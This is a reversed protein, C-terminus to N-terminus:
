GNKRKLTIVVDATIPQWIETRGAPWQRRTPDVMPNEYRIGKLMVDDVTYKDKDQWGVINFLFNEPKKLWVRISENIGRQHKKVFRDFAKSAGSISKADSGIMIFLQNSATPDIGVGGGGGKGPAFRLRATYQIGDRIDRKREKTRKPENDVGLEPVIKGGWKSGDPLVRKTFFDFADAYKDGKSRSSGSIAEETLLNISEALKILEM